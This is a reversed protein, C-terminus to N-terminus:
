LNIFTIEKCYRSQPNESFKEETFHPHLSPRTPITASFLVKSEIYINITVNLLAQTGSLYTLRPSKSPCSTGKILSFM